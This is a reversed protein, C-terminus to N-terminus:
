VNRGFGFVRPRPVSTECGMRDAPLPRQWLLAQTAHVTGLKSINESGRACTYGCSCVGPGERGEGARGGDGKRGDRYEESFRGRGQFRGVHNQTDLILTNLRNLRGHFLTASTWM